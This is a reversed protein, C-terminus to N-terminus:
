QANLGGDRQPHSLPSKSKARPNRQSRGGLTSPLVPPPGPGSRQAVNRTMENYTPCEGHVGLAKGLAARLGCSWLSLLSLALAALLSMIVPVDGPYCGGHGAATEAEAM